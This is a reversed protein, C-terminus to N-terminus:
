PNVKYDCDFTEPLIDVVYGNLELSLDFYEASVVNSTRMGSCAM